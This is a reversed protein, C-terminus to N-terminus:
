DKLLGVNIAFQKCKAAVEDHVLSFCMAVIVLGLFLYLCCAFLQMQSSLDPSQPIRDGLGITTLAIFCFYASDLFSWGSTTAFAAAGLCIYGVFIFIVLSSPVTPVSSTMHSIQNSVSEPRYILPVRSPTDHICTGHDNEDGEENEDIDSSAILGMTNRTPTGHAHAPCMQPDALMQRVQLQRCRGRTHSARVTALLTKKQPEEHHEVVHMPKYCNNQNPNTIQIVCEEHTRCSAHKTQNNTPPRHYGVISNNPVKHKCCLKSYGKRAGGALLSGLASLLVLMLPVGILAYVIAVVKGIATRPSLKGYGITTLLTLSYLLAGGFTWHPSHASSPTGDTRGSEVVAREFRKLQETVLQTWNKEYLVNLREAFIFFFM